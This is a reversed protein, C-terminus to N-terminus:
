DILAPRPGALPVWDDDKLEPEPVHAKRRRRHAGPGIAKIRWILFIGVEVSFVQGDLVIEM